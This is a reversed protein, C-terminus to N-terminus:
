PTRFKNLQSIIGNRSARLGQIRSKVLSMSIDTQIERKLDSSNDQNIATLKNVILNIIKKASSGFVGGSSLCFPLFDGGLQKLIRDHYSNVKKKEANSISKSVSYSRNTACVPSVVSVDIFSTRHSNLLSRISIDARAIDSKNGHVMEKAIPDLIGLLPEIVTSSPGFAKEAYKAVIIKIYDHRRNIVGGIPCVDAHALNFEENCDQAPCVAPLDNPLKNFRILLADQFDNKPLSLNPKWHVPLAHLWANASPISLEDFRLLQESNM